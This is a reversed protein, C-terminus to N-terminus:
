NLHFIIFILREKWEVIRAEDRADLEAGTEDNKEGIQVVRKFEWYFHRARTKTVSNSQRTNFKCVTKNGFKIQFDTITSSCRLFRHM